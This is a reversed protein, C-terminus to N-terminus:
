EHWEHILSNPFRRNLMGLGWFYMLHHFYGDLRSQKFQSFFKTMLYIPILMYTLTGSIIGIGVLLLAPAIEDLEWYLIQPLSDIFEPIEVDNM